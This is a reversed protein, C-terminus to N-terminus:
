SMKLAEFPNLIVFNINPNTNLLVGNISSYVDVIQKDRM